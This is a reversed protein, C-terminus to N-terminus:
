APPTSGPVDAADTRPSSASTAVCSPRHVSCTAPTALASVTTPSVTPRSAAGTTRCPTAGCIANASGTATGTASPSTTSTTAPSNASEVKNWQKPAGNNIRVSGLGWAYEPGIWAYQKNDPSVIWNMGTTDDSIGINTIGGTEPHTTFEIRNDNGTLNNAGMVLTAFALLLINLTTRKKKIDFIITTSIDLKTTRNTVYEM